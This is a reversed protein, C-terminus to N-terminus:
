SYSDNKGEESFIQKSMLKTEQNVAERKTVALDIVTLQQDEPLEDLWKITKNKKVEVLTSRAVQHLNPLSTTLHDNLGLISECFDNSPRVESLVKRVQPDSPELYIGGPLNSRPYHCWKEKMRIVGSVLFHFLSSNCEQFLKKHVKILKVKCRHNIKCNDSYLQDEKFVQLNMRLMVAPVQKVEELFLKLEYYHQNM